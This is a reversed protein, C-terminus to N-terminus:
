SIRPGHAAASSALLEHFPKRLRDDEQDAVEKDVRPALAEFGRAVSGLVKKAYRSVARYFGSRDNEAARDCFTPVWLHLICFAAPMLHLDVQWGMGFGFEAM